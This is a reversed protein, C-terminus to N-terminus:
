LWYLKRIKIEITTVNKQTTEILELLAYMKTTIKGITAYSLVSFLKPDFQRSLLLDMSKPLSAINKEYLSVFAKDWDTKWNTQMKFAKLAQARGGELLKLELITRWSHSFLWPDIGKKGSAVTFIDSLYIKKSEEDATPEYFLDNQFVQFEKVMLLESVDNLPYARNKFLTELAPLVNTSGTLAGIRNFLEEFLKEGDKNDKFIFKQKEFDWLQNIDIKGDEAGICIKITGSVGDASEKLNFTQWRNLVPLLKELFQKKQEEPKPKQAKQDPAQEGKKAQSFTVLQAAAIQIGSNALLQTRLYIPVRKAFPVYTQSRLALYTVLVVLLSIM